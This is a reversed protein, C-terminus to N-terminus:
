SQGPAARIRRPRHGILRGFPFASATRSGAVSSMSRLTRAAEMALEQVHVRSALGEGERVLGLRHLAHIGVLAAM